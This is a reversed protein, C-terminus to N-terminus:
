NSVLNISIPGPEASNHGPSHNLARFSQVLMIRHRYMIFQHHLIRKGPKEVHEIRHCLFIGSRAVVPYNLGSGPWSGHGPVFYVGNSLGEHLCDLPLDNMWIPWIRASNHDNSNESYKLGTISYSIFFNFFDIKPSDILLKRWSTSGSHIVDSSSDTYRALEVWM